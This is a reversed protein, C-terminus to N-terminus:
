ELPSHGALPEWPGVSNHCDLGIAVYGSVTSTTKPAFPALRDPEKPGPTVRFRIWIVALMRTLSDCVM